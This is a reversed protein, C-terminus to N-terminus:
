PVNRIQVEHSLLVQEGDVALTLDIGLLANRSTTAGTYTFYPGANAINEALLAGTALPWPAPDNLAFGAHRFLDAGQVCFGVTNGILYFRRAPSHEAFRHNPILIREAGPPLAVAGNTGNFAVMTGPDNLPYPDGGGVMVFTAGGAPITVGFADFDTGPADIPLVAPTAFGPPVYPVAQDQYSGSALIPLFQLCTGGALVRVSSPHANRLERIIKEIAIRGSSSLQDRRATDQYSEASQAIFQSTGAALAGLIVIVVILEILSFGHHTHIRGLM